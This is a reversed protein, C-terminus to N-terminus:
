LHTVYFDLCMVDFIHAIGLYWLQQSLIQTENTIQTFKFVAHAYFSCYSFAFGHPILQRQCHFM